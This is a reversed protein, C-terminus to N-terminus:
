AINPRGAAKRDSTSMLLIWARELLLATIQIVLIVIRLLHNVLTVTPKRGQSFTSDIFKFPLRARLHNVAIALGSSFGDEHSGHKTWAGCFSINRTAQISPLLHQSKIAAPNYSPHSYEWIGQALRPDPMNLPNMTVLVPGFKEEPVGQVRNMWYTLCMQSINQSKRPPFPSETIYNWASWAPRREPMLSLDSHLVVVNRTTQFGSLIEVEVKTAVPKLIDLAQDHHTALIM